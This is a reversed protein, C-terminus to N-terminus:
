GLLDKSVIRSVIQDSLNGSNLEPHDGLQYIQRILAEDAIQRLKELAVPTGKIRKAAEMMKRGKVDDFIAVLLANTTASIGFTALSERINRNPSICYILEASLSRTSLQNHAAQFIARNAAALLVFPEFVLEARILAIDLVKVLEALESANEVNTFLCVRLFKKQSNDYPDPRLEFLKSVAAKM